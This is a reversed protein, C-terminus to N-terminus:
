EELLLAPIKVVAKRLLNSEGLSIKPCHADGPMFIIFRGPHMTILSIPGLPINFEQRDEEKIYRHPLGLQDVTTWRIGECGSILYQIDITHKHNEWCCEKEPLTDYGHVNAYWNPKGLLYDGFEATTAFKDLWALSHNLVPHNLVPKWLTFNDLSATFM